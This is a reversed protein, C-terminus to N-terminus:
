RGLAVGTLTAGVVPAAAAMEIPLPPNGTAAIGLAEIGAVAVGIALPFLSAIRQMMNLKNLADNAKETPNNKREASEVRPATETLTSQQMNPSIGESNEVNNYNSEGWYSQDM